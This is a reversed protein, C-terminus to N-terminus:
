RPGTTPCYVSQVGSLSRSRSNGSSRSLLSGQCNLFTRTLQAREPEAVGDPTSSRSSAHLRARAPASRSSWRSRRPAQRAAGPRAARGHQHLRQGHRARRTRRHPLAAANAATPRSRSARASTSAGAIAPPQDVIAMGDLRSRLFRVRRDIERLRRKGYTYEANESRDGQAAAAASPPRSWPGSAPAVAARTRRAAAGGRGPHHIQLGASQPHPRYRSM